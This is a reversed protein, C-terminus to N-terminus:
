VGFVGSLIRSTYIHLVLVRLVVEREGEVRRSSTSIHAYPHRLNHTACTSVNVVDDRTRRRTGYAASNNKRIVVHLRMALLLLPLFVYM